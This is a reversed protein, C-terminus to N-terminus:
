LSFDYSDLSLNVNYYKDGRKLSEQWIECFLQKDKRNPSENISDKGNHEAEVFPTFVNLYGLDLLKLCLDADYYDEKYEECFMEVQLFKSKEIMMLSSSVASYNQPTYLKYLYGMDAKPTGYFASGVSDCLGLIYGASWISKDSYLKAGVAGTNERDAYNLLEEVFGKTLVINVCDIFLLFKGSANQAAFNAVSPYSFKGSYKILKVDPFKACIEDNKNVGRDNDAVLVEFNKYTNKEIISTLCKELDVGTGNAVVIISVRPEDVVDYKIRYCSVTNEIKEAKGEPYRKNLAKIAAEICYPKANISSSVSDSHTRWYYLVKPIHIIKSAKDTARLIIDYDQSGDCESDFQGIRDFLNRSMVSLHCIYNISTLSDPAYDPKFHISTPNLIDGSFVEEDTYIFDAGQEIQKMVEFLANPALMDDHDLLALYEGSSMAICANTNASIGGNTELKKYIIRDEFGMYEKVLEGVYAHNEDSADALCLEWNAYTQELVSEIMAKLYARDTNYLPVIVSITLPSAFNYRHQEVREADSFMVTRMFEKADEQRKQRNVTKYYTTKIGFQKVSDIGKKLLEFKQGLSM